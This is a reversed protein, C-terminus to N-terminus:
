FWSTLVFPILLLLAWCSIIFIASIRFLTKKTDGAAQLELRIDTHSSSIWDRVASLVAIAPAVWVLDVLVLLLYVSNAVALEPGMLLYYLYYNAAIFGFTEWVPGLSVAFLERRGEKKRGFLGSEAIKGVIYAESGRVAVIGPVYYPAALGILMLFLTGVFEGVCVIATGIETGLLIPLSLVLISSADFGGLPQPAPIVVFTLIAVVASLVGTLAITQSRAASVASGISGEKKM